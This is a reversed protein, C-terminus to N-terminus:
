ARELRAVDRGLQVLRRTADQQYNVLVPQEVSQGASSPDTLAFPRILALSLEVYAAGSQYRRETVRVLPCEGATATAPLVLQLYDGERVAWHRSHLSGTYTIAPQRLRRLERAAALALESYSTTAVDIVAQRPWLSGAGTDNAVASATKGDSGRAIVETARESLSGSRTVDCLDGDDALHLAYLTGAAPRWNIVGADTIEWEQGTDAGLDGLVSALTQGNFTYEAVFPAAEVFSGGILVPAGLGEIADHVASHAIAGATCNRFVRNRNVVRQEMLAGLERAQITAGQATIQAFGFGRWRGLSADLLEVLTGRDEDLCDAAYLTSGRPIYLEAEGFQRTSPSRWVVSSEAYGERVGNTGTLRWLM